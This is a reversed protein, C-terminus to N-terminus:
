YDSKRRNCDVCLMQCNEQVTKGGKSWPTIHDAEMQEIEFTRGCKKCKHKQLEYAYRRMRNDFARISLYKEDNEGSLLYEYIGKHNSVDDDTFLAVIKSELEAPDYDTDKYKNYLHGWNIGKM